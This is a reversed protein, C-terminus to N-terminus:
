HRISCAAMAPLLIAGSGEKPSKRRLISRAPEAHYLASWVKQKRSTRISGVASFIAQATRSNMEPLRWADNLRKSTPLNSVDELKRNGANLGAKNAVAISRVIMMTSGYPNRGQPTGM